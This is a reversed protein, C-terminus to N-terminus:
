EITKAILKERIEPYKKFNRIYIRSKMKKIHVEISRAQPYNLNEITYFVDRDDAKTIFSNIFDKKLHQQVRFSLEACSGFM